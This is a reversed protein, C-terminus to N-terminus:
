MSSIGAELMEALIDWKGAASESSARAVGRLGGAIFRLHRDFDASIRRLTAPYTDRRQPATERARGTGRGSLPAMNSARHDDQDDLDGREVDVEDHDEEKEKPSVYLGRLQSKRFDAPSLTHARHPSSMTSLRMIEHSETAEMIAALNRSDELEVALDLVDLMCERIPDLRPGLCSEQIVTAVFAAHRHIMGDVDEASSLTEKLAEINPTFVLTTLYTMVTNCFWLLRTRLRYYANSEARLMCEETRGDLLLRNMNLAHISRRLQLLITFIGQYRELCDGKIVLQVPWAMRYRLKLRPLNERIPIRGETMESRAGASKDFSASVRHVDLLGSFAEQALETLMFRDDWGSQRKDMKDFVASTFYDSAAGDKMLYLHQLAGLTSRLGCSEFLAKQLVSSTAHHKSKIWADFVNAFLESFPALESGPPCVDAFELSPPQRSQQHSAALDNMGLHKLVVISKGTTYIRAVAFQLFRPAHLRGDLTQRLKFQNQWIQNLPLKVKSESIFFIKDGPLLEGEEMWLRIPRLYVQFCKLFTSGLTKYATLDGQLQSACTAEFLLELYRFAHPYREDRLRQVIAGLSRLSALHIQAEEMVAMVSVMVDMKPDAYRAQMGAIERDFAGLAERICDQFTQLLPVDQRSEVFGRLPQLPRGIEAVATILARYTEWSVESLQYALVPACKEDFLSTKHGQLMFLIERVVQAETIPIKSRRGEDGPCPSELRWSQSEKVDDLNISSPGTSSLDQPIKLQPTTDSISTDESDSSGSTVAHEEYSEDESSGAGFDVNRWLARDHVWGDENAIDEWKLTPGADLDSRRLLHLDALHSQQLPQDSLELLLHLIDPTWKTSLPELNDRRTELAAALGDRGNVVFKEQLGNLEEEVLFQNTRTFTHHRLKKLCEERLSVVRRRQSEYADPCIAEILEEVQAGLLAAFAM